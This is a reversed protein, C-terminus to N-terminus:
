PCRTGVALRQSVFALDRVDIVNDKVVDVRGDFGAEGLKKGFTTRAIAIGFCNVVGDGNV